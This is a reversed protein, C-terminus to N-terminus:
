PLHSAIAQAGAAVDAKRRNPRVQVFVLLDGKVFIVGPVTNSRGSYAWDGIGALYAYGSEPAGSSKVLAPGDNRSLPRSLDFVSIQASPVYPRTNPYHWACVYGSLAADLPRTFGLQNRAFPKLFAQGVPGSGAQYFASSPALMQAASAFPSCGLHRVTAASSGSTTQAESPLKSGPGSGSSSTATAAFTGPVTRHSATRRSASSSSKSSGCGSVGTGLAVSIAAILCSTKRVRIV